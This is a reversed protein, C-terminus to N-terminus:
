PGDYALRFGQFAWRMHPYFFNRYTARIHDRPTVCAGGRLVVQNMMFKGNYEGLAGALPAFGPYAAYASQTHEWVDGFMQRLGTGRASRPQLVDDELFNGDAPDLTSAAHEWEAETPLRAQSWRAYADAEYLSVHVVPAEPDLPRLGGLTMEHWEGDIEEWYLPARWEERRVTAWGDSLWSQPSDYGGASM